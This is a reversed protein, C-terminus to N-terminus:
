SILYLIKKSPSGKVRWYERQVQSNLVLSQDFRLDIGDMGPSGGTLIRGWIDKAKQILGIKLGKM